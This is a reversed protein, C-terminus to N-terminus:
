GMFDYVQISTIFPNSEALKEAEERDEARLIIFGTVADLDMPLDKKGNKSFEVGKSLHGKEVVHDGVLEFWEKWAKMIEQTPKKFGITLFLFKKM